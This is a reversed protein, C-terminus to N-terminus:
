RTPRPAYSTARRRWSKRLKTEASSQRPSLVRWDLSTSYGNSISANWGNFTSISGRRRSLSSTKTRSYSWYSLRM